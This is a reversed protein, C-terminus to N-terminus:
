ERNCDFCREKFDFSISFVISGIWDSNTFASTGVNYPDKIGDASDGFTRTFLCTLQANTRPSMKWKAGLGLPICFVAGTDGDGSAVGMGAGATIFPALRKKERYDNAWGFNWFHFEPRFALTWVRNEFSLNANGPFVNDFDKSDGEIGYTSVDAVFSWRPNANYRFLLEGAGSPNYVAKSRNIDGYAWSMGGGVGLEYMYEAEQAKAGLLSLALILTAATRM